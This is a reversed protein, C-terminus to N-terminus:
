ALTMTADQHSPLQSCWTTWVTQSCLGHSFYSHFSVHTCIPRRAPHRQVSYERLKMKQMESTPSITVMKCFLGTSRLSWAHMPIVGHGMVCTAPSRGLTDSETPRLRPRLRHMKLWNGPTGSAGPGPVLNPFGPGSSRILLSTFTDTLVPRSHQPRECVATTKQRQFAEPNSPLHHCSM